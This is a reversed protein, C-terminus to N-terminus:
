HSRQNLSYKRKTTKTRRPGQTTRRRSPLVGFCGRISLRINRPPQQDSTELYTIQVAAVGVQTLGDITLREKSEVTQVISKYDDILDVRFRRVNSNSGILSVSQLEVSVTAKFIIVFTIPSSSSEYSILSSANFYDTLRNTSKAPLTGAISKVLVVSDHENMMDIEHCQGTTSLITGPTTTWPAPSSEEESSPRIGFCGDISLVVNRPTQGDTTTLYTIQVGAAPAYFDTVSPKQQTDVFTTQLIARDSDLVDIQYKRVNSDKSTITISKLEAYIDAKFVIILTPRAEAYSIPTSANFYDFISSSRPNTGSFYGIIKKAKSRDAMLDMHQCPAPTTSSVGTPIGTTTSPPPIGFCGRVSLRVNEAPQGDYTEEITFRIAAIDQIPETETRNSSYDITVERVRLQNADLYDIRMRKVNSKVSSPLLGVQKLYVFLEPKFVVFVVTTENSKDFSVSQGHVLDLLSANVGRPNSGSLGALIRASHPQQMVDVDVCHDLSSNSQIGHKGIPMFSRRGPTIPTTSPYVRETTSPLTTTAPTTVVIEEVCADISLVINRPPQDDTTQLLTLRVGALVISPLSELTVVMSSSEITFQVDNENNLLEIRMRKLNSASSIMSISNLSILLNAHFVIDISPQADVFSVGAQKIQALSGSILRNPSTLGLIINSSNM